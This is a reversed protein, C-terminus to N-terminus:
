EANRPAVPTNPGSHKSLTEDLQILFTESWSELSRHFARLSEDMWSAARKMEDAASSIQYAARSVQESGQLYVYEM